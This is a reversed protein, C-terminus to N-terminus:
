LPLRGAQVSASAALIALGFLLARVRGFSGKPHM